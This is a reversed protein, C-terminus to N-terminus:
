RDTIEIYGRSKLLNFLAATPLGVVNEYSGRIGKILSRGIWNQIGYAGAKDLVEDRHIYFEIESDSLVHFEVETTESITDVKSEFRVCVGSIVKHTKGSLRSLMEYAEIHTRPKGMIISEDFVLTDATILVHSKAIRPWITRNKEEALFLPVQFPDMDSSYSEDMDNTIVEFDIGLSALLDKRRPSASGLVIKKQILEM